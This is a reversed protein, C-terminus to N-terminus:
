FSALIIAPICKTVKIAEAVIKAGEAKLRNRSLDLSTMAGMDKIADALAIVGSMDPDGGVDDGSRTYKKEYGKWGLRNSGIDLETIGQNGKLGAALAKGGEAYLENEKLSLISLAGMGPIVDALAIVGSMDTGDSDYMTKYGLRTSRINLETIVQNDKLGGALVKGGGDSISNGQMSM